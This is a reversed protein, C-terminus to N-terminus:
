SIQDTLLGLSRPLLSPPITEKQRPSIFYAWAELQKLKVYFRPTDLKQFANIHARLNLDFYDTSQNTLKM